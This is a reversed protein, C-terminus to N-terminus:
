KRGKLVKLGAVGRHILGRRQAEAVLSEYQVPWQLYYQLTHDEWVQENMNQPERMAADVANTFRNREILHITALLHSSAMNRIEIEQGERTTWVDKSTTPM